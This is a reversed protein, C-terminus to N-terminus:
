QGTVENFKAEAESRTTYGLAQVPYVGADIFLHFGESVSYKCIYRGNDSQLVVDFVNENNQVAIVLRDFDSTAEANGEFAKAYGFYKPLDSSCRIFVKYVNKITGFYKKVVDVAYGNHDISEVLENESQCYAQWDEYEIPENQPSRYPTSM